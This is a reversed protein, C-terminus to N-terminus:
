RPKRPPRDDPQERLGDRGADSSIKYRGARDHRQCDGARQQACVGGPRADAHPARGKAADDFGAHRRRRKGAARHSLPSQQLHRDQHSRATFTKDFLPDNSLNQFEAVVVVIPKGPMAPATRYWAVGAAGAAAIALGCFLMIYRVSIKHRKQSRGTVRLRLRHWLKGHFRGERPQM